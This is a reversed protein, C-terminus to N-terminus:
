EKKKRKKGIALPLAMSTTQSEEDGDDKLNLRAVIKRLDECTESLSGPNKEVSGLIEKWLPIMAAFVAGQEEKKNQLLSTDKSFRDEWDPLVRSSSEDDSEQTYMHVDESMSPLISKTKDNLLRNVLAKPWNLCRDAAPLIQLDEHGPNFPEDLDPTPMPARPGPVDKEFTKALAEIAQSAPLKNGDDDTAYAYAKYMSHWVPHLDNLVHTFNSWYKTLIHFLHRCSIGVRQFYGCDCVLYCHSGITVLTVTRVRRFRPVFNSLFLPNSVSDREENAGNYVLQWRTAIIWASTFDNLRNYESEYLGAGYPVLKSTLMPIASWMANNSLGTLAAAQYLEKKKDAQRNLQQLSTDVDMSPRVALTGKKVGSFSAEQTSSTFEEFAFLTKRRYFVFNAQFPSVSRLYMQQVSEVLDAGIKELLEPTGLYYIFLIRSVEYEEETECGRTMWSYMWSFIIRRTAEAYWRNKQRKGWKPVSYVWRNWSRDILHWACRLRHAQTMVVDIMNNIQAIEQSDGDSIITNIRNIDKGLITPLAHLLLWRFIWAQENPIWCRLVTFVQNDSTKGTVTLLPIGRANTGFTVDIKVVYPFKRFLSRESATMWVVALFMDQDDPIKRSRRHEAVFHDM